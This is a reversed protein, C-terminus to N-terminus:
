KQYNGFGHTYSRVAGLVFDINERSIDNHTVFRYVGHDAANTKIGNELLYHTFADHNFDPATIKFFVMNIHVTDTDLTIFPIQTLEKAMYLANEHDIHLRKTMKELSIIGCAALIGIQRMGGGLLKRYKRAKNIFTKSGCLMSGVPACLGKSLCFMASDTYQTIERANTNLYVAANFLRAGDLHVPLNYAKAATYVDKMKELSVVTGNSLANELCVLGTDPYHIDSGRVMDHIDQGSITDDPNNVIRYSTSSLIAAGGVEHAVIHSNHSLIVEDGRKTHAMIALQNAMTGSPTFLAAEFGTMKASLAELEIVTPDDEYVDDGVVATSMASRMEETPETVTDSRLDIFNM